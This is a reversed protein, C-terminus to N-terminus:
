QKEKGRISNLQSNFFLFQLLCNICTNYCRTLFEGVEFACVTFWVICKSAKVFCRM